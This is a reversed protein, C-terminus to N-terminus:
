PYGVLRDARIVCAADVDMARVMERLGAFTPVTWEASARQRASEDVDVAAVLSTAPHRRIAAEHAAAIGGCGVLAVRLPAM